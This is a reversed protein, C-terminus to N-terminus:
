FIQYSHKMGIAAANDNSRDLIEMASLTTCGHLKGYFVPRSMIVINRPEVRFARCGLSDHDVM